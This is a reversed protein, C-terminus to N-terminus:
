RQLQCTMQVGDRGTHIFARIGTPPHTDNAYELLMSKKM